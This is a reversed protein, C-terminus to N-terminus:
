TLKNKMRAITLDFVLYFRFVLIEFFIVLRRSLINTYFLNLKKEKMFLLTLPCFSSLLYDDSFFPWTGYFNIIVSPWLIYVGNIVVSHYSSSLMISLLQIIVSLYSSSLMFLYSSSLMITVFLIVLIFVFRSIPLFSPTFFDSLVFLRCYEKRQYQDSCIANYHWIVASQTIFHPTTVHKWILWTWIRIGFVCSVFFHLSIFIYWVLPITSTLATTSLWFYQSTNSKLRIFFYLTALFVM